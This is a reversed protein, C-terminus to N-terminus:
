VNMTCSYMSYQTSYQLIACVYILINYVKANMDYLLPIAVYAYTLNSTINCTSIYKNINANTYEHM